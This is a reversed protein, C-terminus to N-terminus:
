RGKNTFAFSYVPFWATCFHLDVMKNKCQIAQSMCAFMCHETYLIVYHQVSFQVKRTAVYFEM